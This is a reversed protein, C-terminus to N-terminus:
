KEEPVYLKSFAIRVAETTEERRREIHGRIASIAAAEDRSAVAEVIRRHASLQGANNKPAARLIELNILRVYRIRGNINDLMNILEANGALEALRRHFAEDMELLKSLDECTEYDPEITDLYAGLATLEADEARAVARRVAETEIAQRAEYLECIRSPSLARCFFGRGTKFTLFGEAVLRNLAERLPTRSAGLQVSLVSENLREEPKFEFAVAMERLRAYAKDVSSLHKNM